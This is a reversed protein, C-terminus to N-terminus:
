GKWGKLGDLMAIMVKSAFVEYLDIGNTQYGVFQVDVQGSKLRWGGLSEMAEKLTRFDHEVNDGLRMRLKLKFEDVAPFNNDLKVASHGNEDSSEVHTTCGVHFVTIGDHHAHQYAAMVSLDRCRYFSVSLHTLEPLNTTNLSDEIRYVDAATITLHVLNPLVFDM